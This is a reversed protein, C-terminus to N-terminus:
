LKISAEYICLFRGSQYEGFSFICFLDNVVYFYLKLGERSGNFRKINGLKKIGFSLALAIDDANFNFQEDTNILENLPMLEQLSLKISQEKINFLLPINKSTIDGDFLGVSELDYFVLRKKIRKSLNIFSNNIFRM